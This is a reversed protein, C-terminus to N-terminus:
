LRHSNPISRLQLDALAIPPRAPLNADQSTPSSDLSWLGVRLGAAALAGLVVMWKLWKIYGQRNM